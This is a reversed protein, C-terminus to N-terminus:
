GLSKMRERFDKREISDESDAASHQPSCDPQWVTNWGATPRSSKEGGAQACTHLCLVGAKWGTDKAHQVKLDGIASPKPTRTRKSETGRSATGKAPM